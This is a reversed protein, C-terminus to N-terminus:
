SQAGSVPFRRRELADFVASTGREVLELEEPRLRSRWGEAVEQAEREFRHLGSGPVQKRPTATVTRALRLGLVHLLTALGRAGSLAPESDSVPRCEPVDDLWSMVQEHLYTWVEVMATADDQDSSVPPLGKLARVEDRGATWGVRRYSARVAGPHRYLVVPVPSTARVIAPVSLLAFPDKVVTTTWPLAASWQKIGYRSLTRVERGRYVRRLLAVQRETPQDLRTWGTLTGGLGFQGARPNM